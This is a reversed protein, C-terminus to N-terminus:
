QQSEISGIIWLINKLYEILYSALTAIKIKAFNFVGGVIYESIYGHTFKQPSRRLPLASDAGGPQLLTLADSFKCQDGRRNRGQIINNQETCKTDYTM